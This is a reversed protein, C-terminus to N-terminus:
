DTAASRTETLRRLRGGIKHYLFEAVEEHGRECWQGGVSLHADVVIGKQRLGQLQENLGEIWWFGARRAIAGLRRNFEPPGGVNFVVVPRSGLVRAAM